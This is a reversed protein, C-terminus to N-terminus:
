EDNIGQGGWLSRPSAAIALQYVSTFSAAMSQPAPWPADNLATGTDRSTVPQRHITLLDEPGLRHLKTKFSFIAM